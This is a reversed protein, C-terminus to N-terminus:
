TFSPKCPTWFQMSVKALAMRAAATMDGTAPVRGTQTGALYAPLAFFFQLESSFCLKEGDSHIMTQAFGSKM